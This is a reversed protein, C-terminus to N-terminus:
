WELDIHADRASMRAQAGIPIPRYCRELGFSLGTVLPGTMLRGFTRELTEHLPPFVDNPDEYPGQVDIDGWLLASLNNWSGNLVLRQSKEWLLYEHQGPTDPTHDETLLIAKDFSPAYKTGALHTLCTFNGCMLPGEAEGDRLVDCYESWHGSAYKGLRAHEIVTGIYPLCEGNDALSWINPAVWAQFGNKVVMMQLFTIDSFGFLVKPRKPSEELYRYLDPMLYIAGAGGDVTWLADIDERQWMTLFEDLRENIREFPSTYRPRSQLVEPGLVLEHGHQELLELGPRLERIEPRYSPAVIGIRV